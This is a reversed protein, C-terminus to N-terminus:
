DDYGELDNVSTSSPIGDEVSTKPDTLVLGRVVGGSGVTPRPPVRRPPRSGVRFRTASKHRLANVACAYFGAARLRVSFTPGVPSMRCLKLLARETWPVHHVLKRKRHKTAALATTSAVDM